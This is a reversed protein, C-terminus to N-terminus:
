IKKLAGTARYIMEFESNCHFSFRYNIDQNVKSFNDEVLLLKSYGAENALKLNSEKYSGNPFAYIYPQFGLNDKFWNSCSLLDNRFFDDSELAMSSHYFSHAGWDYYNLIQLIDERNMMPTSLEYLKDGIQEYCYKEIERQVKYSNNKVYRSLKLGEEYKNLNQNWSYNPIKFKILEKKSIKGIYDQLIVNVPPRKQEICSPIININARIGHRMLIPHAITLFDKYGDDFSLIVKPKEVPSDLNPKENELESFSTFAFNEKLFIILKSFIQPDLPPYASGDDKAVRHLNLIVLLNKEKIKYIRRKIRLPNVLLQYILQKIIQKTGKNYPLYM